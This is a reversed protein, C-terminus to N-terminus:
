RFERTPIASGGPDSQPVEPDFNLLERANTHPAGPKAPMLCQAAGCGRARGRPGGPTHRKRSRPGAGVGM